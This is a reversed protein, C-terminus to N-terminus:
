DLCASAASAMRLAWPLSANLTEGHSLGPLMRFRAHLDPRASIDQVFREAQGPTPAGSACDQCREQRVREAGGALVLLAGRPMSAPRQPAGTIRQAMFPAHWWLSPSAAVYRDYAGPQTLLAHLVFLGGYSHGYLTRRRPDIHWHAALEGHLRLLFALFLDAGGNLRAASRPDPASGHAGPPLPTYDWARSATDFRDNTDYGVAVLLLGQALPAHSPLAQLVANGDLMYAVPWGQAPAPGAPQRITVRWATYGDHRALSFTQQLHSMPQIAAPAKALAIGPLLAQTACAILHRRRVDM